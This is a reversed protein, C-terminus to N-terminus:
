KQTPHKTAKPFGSHSDLQMGALLKGTLLTQFATLRAIAAEGADLLRAAVHPIIPIVESSSASKEAVILLQSAVETRIPVKPMTLLPLLADLARKRHREQLM